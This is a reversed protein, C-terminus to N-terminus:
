GNVDKLIEHLLLNKDKYKKKMKRYLNILSGIKRARRISKFRGTTFKWENMKDKIKILDSEFENILDNDEPQVKNSLKALEIKELQNDIELMISLFANEKQINAMNTM